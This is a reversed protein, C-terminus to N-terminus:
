LAVFLRTFSGLSKTKQKSFSFNYNYNLSRIYSQCLHFAIQPDDAFIRQFFQHQRKKTYTHLNKKGETWFGLFIVVLAFTFLFKVSNHLPQIKEPRFNALQSRHLSKLFIKELCNLLFIPRKKDLTSSTKAFIKDYCQNKLFFALKKSFIPLFRM